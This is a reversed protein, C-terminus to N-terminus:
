HEYSLPRFLRATHMLNNTRIRCNHMINNKQCFGAYVLM